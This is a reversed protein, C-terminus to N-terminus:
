EEELSGECWWLQPWLENQLLEKAAIRAPSLARSRESRHSPVPLSPQSPLRQERWIRRLPFLTKRRSGGVPIPLGIEARTLTSFISVLLVCVVGRM